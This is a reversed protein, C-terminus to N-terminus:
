RTLMLKRTETYSGARLRCFYMGSPLGRADFRVEHYGAGQEGNQLEAVQQGLTNFVGLVVRSPTALTYPITTTPNFPNPYNQMLGYSGPTGAHDDEVATTINRYLFTMTMFSRFADYNGADDVIYLSYRIDHWAAVDAPVWAADKWVEAGCMNLRGLGDYSTNFRWVNQWQGATFREQSRQVEKGNAGYTWETRTVPMMAGGQLEEEEALVIRGQGDYSAMGRRADGIQGNFWQTLDTYQINGAADYFDRVLASDGGWVGNSRSRSRRHEEFWFSKVFSVTAVNTTDWGTRGWQESTMLVTQGLANRITTYRYDNYWDGSFRQTVRTEQAHQDDYTYLQRHVRYLPGGTGEEYLQSVPRGEGDYEVSTRNKPLITAGRWFETFETLFRGSDDWTWHTRLSDLWVGNALRHVVITKM